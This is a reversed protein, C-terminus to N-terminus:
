SNRNTANCFDRFIADRHGSIRSHPHPPIPCTSIQKTTTERAGSRCLSFKCFPNISTFGLCATFVRAVAFVVNTPILFTESYCETRCLPSWGPLDNNM